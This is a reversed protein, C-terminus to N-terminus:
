SIRPIRNLDELTDYNYRSSVDLLDKPRVRGKFLPDFEETTTIEYMFDNLRHRQLDNSENDGPLYPPNNHIYQWGAWIRDVNCHNLFFVPDNPSSSLVMDGGVWVHIANHMTVPPANFYGELDNRFSDSEQNWPVEDYLVNSSTRHISNKVNERTPLTTRLGEDVKVGANRALSSNVQALVVGGQSLRLQERYNVTWLGKAFPGTTVPDGSGGMCNPAWIKSSIQENESLDGDAGWNWYPLSFDSDNLVRQLHHELLLLFWRHWPLFVPGSHAANRFGGSGDAPTRTMMARFHWIVFIDYTNPWNPRIFDEKLLKVGSIFKDRSSENNLINNRVVAMVIVGDGILFVLLYAIM